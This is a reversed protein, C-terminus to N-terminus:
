LVVSVCHDTIEGTLIGRYDISDSQGAQVHYGNRIGRMM